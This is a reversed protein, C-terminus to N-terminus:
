PNKPPRFVNNLIFEFCGSFLLIIFLMLEPVLNPDVFKMYQLFLKTFLFVEGWRAFWRIGTIASPIVIVVVVIIISCWCFVCGNEWCVVVVLDEKRPEMFLDFKEVV